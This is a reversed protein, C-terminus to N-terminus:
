KWHSDLWKLIALLGPPVGGSDFSVEHSIGDQGITISFNRADRLRPNIPMSAPLEFFKAAKLLEAFETTDEPRIQVRRQRAVYDPAGTESWRVEIIPTNPM